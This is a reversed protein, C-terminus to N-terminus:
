SEGPAPSVEMGGRLVAEVYQQSDLRKEWERVFLDEAPGLGEPDFVLVGPHQVFRIPVWEDNSVDFTIEPDSMLDRNQTYYHAVSIRSEYVKEISLEMRPENEVTILAGVPMAAASEYGADRIITKIPQM